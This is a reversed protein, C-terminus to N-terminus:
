KINFLFPLHNYNRIFTNDYVIHLLSLIFRIGFELFVSNEFQAHVSDDACVSYGDFFAM